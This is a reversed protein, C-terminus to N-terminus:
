NKKNFNLKAYEGYLEIAKKDRVEAAEEETNFTGLNYRKKNHTIYSKYKSTDKYTYKSVGIFKSSTGNQKTINHSNLIYSSLRLNILRNDIKNNNIHDIIDNPKANMLYRHMRVLKKNILACAYKNVISWTYQKLEFYKNDDVLIEKDGIKLIAIGESNREIDTGLKKIKKYYEFNNKTNNYILEAEEITDYTGLQKHGFRARYKGRKLSVGTPLNRVIEVPKIFDKPEELGNIKANLGYYRLALQDYWYGAHEKKKFTYKKLGDNTSIGCRWRGRDLCVGIYESTLGKKKTRNQSNQSYTAIRLNEKRNDLKDNNIHDIIIGNTANMIIRHLLKGRSRAYGHNIYWKMKYYKEYDDKDVKTYLINNGHKVPILYDNM